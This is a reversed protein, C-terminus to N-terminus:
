RRTGYGTITYSRGSISDCRGGEHLRRLCGRRGSLKCPDGCLHANVVCSYGSSFNFFGSVWGVYVHKGPHGASCTNLLITFLSPCLVCALGCAQLIRAFNVSIRVSTLPKVVHDGDHLRSRICLLHCSACQARCLQVNAKMEIVLVTSFRRRLDEIAAHGGQFREYIRTWGFNSM